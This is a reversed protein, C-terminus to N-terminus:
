MLEIAGSDKLRRIIQVIKRQEQLSEAQNEKSLEMEEEVIKRAGESLVGLIREKVEGSAFKLARALSRTNVFRLVTQIVNADQRALDEFRFISNRLETALIPDEDAIHELFQEQVQPSSNELMRLLKDRGGTVFEIRERLKREFEVIEERPLEKKYILFSMIDSQKEPPFFSLFKEVLPETLYSLVVAIKESDEDKLLYALNSINSDNVFSFLGSSPKEEIKKPEESRSIFSISEGEGRQVEVGKQQPALNAISSAFFSMFGRVPGFLFIIFLLAFVSLLLNSPKLFFEKLSNVFTKEEAVSVPVAERKSVFDERIIQLTDKEGLGLSTKILSTIRMELDSSVNKPLIITIIFRTKEVLQKSPLTGIKEEVPVGPLIKEKKKSLDIVETYKVERAAVSFNELAFVNRLIQSIQKEITQTEAYLFGALIFLVAYKRM